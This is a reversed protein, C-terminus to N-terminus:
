GQSEEEKQFAIQVKRFAAFFLHKQDETKMSCVFKFSGKCTLM